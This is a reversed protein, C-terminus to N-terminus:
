KGFDQVLPDQWTRRASRDVYVSFVSAALSINLPVLSVQSRSINFVILKFALSKTSWHVLLPCPPHSGTPRLCPNANIIMPLWASMPLTALISYYSAHAIYIKEISDKLCIENLRPMTFMSPGNYGAHHLTFLSLANTNCNNLRTIKSYIDRYLRRKWNTRQPRTTLRTARM